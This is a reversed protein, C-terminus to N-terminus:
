FGRKKWFNAESKEEEEILSFTKDAVIKGKLEVTMRWDGLKNHVPPWITDGLYFDWNNNGVYEEGEFPPMIEGNDNPIDPHYICFKLKEGKAKKFNIIMGFEVDIEAIVETTFTKIKPLSKSKADWQTYIGYSSISVESKLKSM